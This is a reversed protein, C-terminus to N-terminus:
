RHRHAVEVGHHQGGRLADPHEGVAAGVPDVAGDRGGEADGGGVVPRGDQQDPVDGERVVDAFQAFFLPTVGAGVVMRDLVVKIAESDYTGGSGAEDSWAQWGGHAALERLLDTFVGKVCPFPM